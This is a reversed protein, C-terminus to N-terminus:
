EAGRGKDMVAAIDDLFEIFSTELSRFLFPIEIGELHKHDGKGRENDYRVICKGTDTGFFFRYKFLHRCGPVPRQLRWVVMERIYGERTQKERYLLEGKM